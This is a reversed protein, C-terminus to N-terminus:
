PQSRNLQAMRRWRPTAQALLAQGPRSPQRARFAGLLWVVWARFVGLLWVVWARFVGLLWAVWARFFVQARFAGLLWAM